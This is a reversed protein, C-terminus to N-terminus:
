ETLNNLKRKNNMYLSLTIIIGIMGAGLLGYCIYSLIQSKPVFDYDFVDIFEGYKITAILKRTQDNATLDIHMNKDYINKFGDSEEILYKKFVDTTVQSPKYKELINSDNKQKIYISLFKEINIKTGLISNYTQSKVNTIEIEVKGNINDVDIVEYDINNLVDQDFDNALLIKNIEDKNIKSAILGYEYKSSDINQYKDINFIKFDSYVKEVIGNNTKIKINITGLLDNPKIIIDSRDIIEKNLRIKRDDYAYVFNEMIEDYSISSPFRNKSEESITNFIVNQIVPKGIYLYDGKKYIHKTSYDTVFPNNSQLLCNNEDYNELVEINTIKFPYDSNKNPIIVSKRQYFLYNYDVIISQDVFKELVNDYIQYNIRIKLLSKINDITESLVSVDDIQYKKATKFIMSPHSIVFDKPSIYKELRYYYFEDITYIDFKGQKCLQDFEKKEDYNLLIDIKQYVKSNVTKKFVDAIELLDQNLGFFIQHNNFDVHDITVLQSPNFCNTPNSNLAVLNDKELVFTTKNPERNTQLTYVFRSVFNYIVYIYQNEKIFTYPIAYVNYNTNNLDRNIGKLFNIEENENYVYDTQEGNQFVKKSYLNNIKQYPKWINQIDFALSTKTKGWNTNSKHIFLDVYNILIKDWEPTRTQSDYANNGYVYSGSNGSEDKHTTQKISDICTHTRVNGANNCSAYMNKTVIDFNVYHSDINTVEGVPSNDHWYLIQYLSFTDLNQKKTTNNYESHSFLHNNNISETLNSELRNGYCSNTAVTTTLISSFTLIIKFGYLHKM